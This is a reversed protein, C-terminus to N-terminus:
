AKLISINQILYPELEALVYTHGASSVDPSPHMADLDDKFACKYESCVHSRYAHAQANSFKGGSGDPHRLVFWLGMNQWALSDM